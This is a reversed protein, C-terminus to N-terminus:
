EEVVEALRQELEADSLKELAERASTHRSEAVDRGQRHEKTGWTNTQRAKDDLDNLASIRTDDASRELLKQIM